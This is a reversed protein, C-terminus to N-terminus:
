TLPKGLSWKEAKTGGQQKLISQAIFMWSVLQSCHSSDVTMKDVKDQRKMM